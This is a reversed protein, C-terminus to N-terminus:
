EKMKLQEFKARYTQLKAGKVKADGEYINQLKEWVDKVSDYHLVKVYIPNELGNLILHTDRSNNENLKKGDRDISHSSPTTYGYAVLKWVDFGHAQIYTKMRRSWLSYNQGYFPPVGIKNYEM